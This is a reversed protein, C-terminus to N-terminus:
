TNVSVPRVAQRPVLSALSEAPERPRVATDDRVDGSRQGGAILMLAAMGCCTAATLLVAGALVPSISALKATLAATGLMSSMVLGPTAMPVPPGGRDAGWRRRSAAWGAGFALILAPLRVSFELPRPPGTFELAMALALLVGTM